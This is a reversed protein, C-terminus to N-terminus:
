KPLSKASKVIWEAAAQADRESLVKPARVLYTNIATGITQVIETQDGRFLERGEETVRWRACALHALREATRRDTVPWIALVIVPGYTKGASARSVDRGMGIKVAGSQLRTAYIYGAGGM